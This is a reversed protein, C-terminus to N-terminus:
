RSICNIIAAAREGGDTHGLWLELLLFLLFHWEYNQPVEPIVFILSFLRKLFVTGYVLCM